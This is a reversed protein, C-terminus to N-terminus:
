AAFEDLPGKDKLYTLLDGGNCYEFVLYYNNATQIFDDLRVINRHKIISLIHLERQQNRRGKDGWRQLNESSIIKMALPEPDQRDKGDDPASNLDSAERPQKELAAQYM